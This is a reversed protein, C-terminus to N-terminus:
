RYDSACAQYRARRHAPPVTRGGHRRLQIASIQDEAWGIAKDVKWSWARGSHYHLIKRRRTAARSRITRGRLLADAYKTGFRWQRTSRPRSHWGAQRDDHLSDAARAHCRGHSIQLRPGDMRETEAASFRRRLKCIFRSRIRVSYGSQHVNNMKGICNVASADFDIRSWGSAPLLFNTQM